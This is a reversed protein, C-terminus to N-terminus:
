NTVGILRNLENKAADELLPFFINFEAHYFEYDNKLAVSAFEMQSNFSTRRSMGTLAKDMGEIHAYSVLWNYAKMYTFMHRSRKPMEVTRTSLHAYCSDVFVDLPINHFQIWNSALFHDYFMDVIVPAYKGFEPRLRKKSQLVVDHNDTYDDIFRHLKIGTQIALSYSEMERGKVFDAIFNGFLVDKSTGSLHLHALYNM